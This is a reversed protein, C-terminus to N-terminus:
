GMDKRSSGKEKFKGLVPIVNEQRLRDIYKNHKVAKM